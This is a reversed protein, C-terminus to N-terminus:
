KEEEIDYEFEEWLRRGDKSRILISGDALGYLRAGKQFDHRFNEKPFLSKSGKSAEIGIVREYIEVAGEMLDNGILDKRRM